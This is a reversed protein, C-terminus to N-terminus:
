ASWGRLDAGSMARWSGSPLKGLSWSGVVCGILRLTLHVVAATMRGLQRNRGERLGLEMLTTPIHRWQRIPPSRAWLGAPPEIIRARESLTPRGEPDTFQCLVGYPKNLLIIRSM